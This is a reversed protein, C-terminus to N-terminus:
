WQGKWKLLAIKEQAGALSFRFDDESFETTDRSSAEDNCLRAAVETDSLVEGKIRTSEIPVEGESLLQVAGVCDRGVAELLSYTATVHISVRRFRKVFDLIM